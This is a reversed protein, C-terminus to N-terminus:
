ADIVQRGNVPSVVWGLDKNNVLAIVGLLHTWDGRKPCVIHVVYHTRFMTRFFFRYPYACQIRGFKGFGLFPCGGLFAPGCGGLFPFGFGGFVTGPFGPGSGSCRDLYICWLVISVFSCFLSSAYWLRRLPLLCGSTSQIWETLRCHSGNKSNRRLIIECM